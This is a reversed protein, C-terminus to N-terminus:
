FADMSEEPYDGGKKFISSGITGGVAGLIASIVLSVAVIGILMFPSTFLEQMQEAQEPDLASNEFANTMAERFSPTLGFFSALQGILTGVLAAVVGAGAGMVAGQGGTITLTYTSTYHWVALLGAGAYALCAFCSGVYPISALLSTIVGVALGGLLM